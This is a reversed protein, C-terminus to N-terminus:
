QSTQSKHNTHTLGETVDLEKCSWPSYGVLSRQGHLEGPLIVPTPLWGRRWPIKEVRPDFRPRGRQLCITIIGLKLSYFPDCMDSFPTLVTAPEEPGEGEWDANEVYGDTRIVDTVLKQISLQTKTGHQNLSSPKLINLWFYSIEFRMSICIQFEIFCRILTQDWTSQIIGSHGGESFKGCSGVYSM